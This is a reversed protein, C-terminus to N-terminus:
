RLVALADPAVGLGDTRGDLVLCGGDETPMVFQPQHLTGPDDDFEAFWNVDVQPAAFAEPTVGILLASGM